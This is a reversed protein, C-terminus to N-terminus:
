KVISYQNQWVDVHIWWPHVYTGVESGCGGGCGREGYWGEPNDWHVLGLFETDQMSGLSAIQKKYSIICTESGNEWIMGGEVEGVSDLLSNQVNTDGKSDQM